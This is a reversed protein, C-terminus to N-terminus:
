GRNSAALGILFAAGIVGIGAMLGLTMNDMRGSDNNHDVVTTHEVTSSSTSDSPAAPAAPAPAAPAPADVKVNVNPTPQSSSSSSSSNSNDQALAPGVFTMAALAASLLFRKM